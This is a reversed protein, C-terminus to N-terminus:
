GKAAVVEEVRARAIRITNAQAEAPDNYQNAISERLAPEGEKHAQFSGMWKGPNGTSPRIAWEVFYGHPKEDLLTFEIVKKNADNEM